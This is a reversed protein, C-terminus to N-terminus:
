KKITYFKNITNGIYEMDDEKYRQDIPLLVVNDSISLEHSNAGNWDMNAWLKLSYINNKKLFIRIDEGQKEVFLPYMYTIDKCDLEFRNYKKLINKQNSRFYFFGVIILIIGIIFLITIRKKFVEQKITKNKMAVYSHIGYPTILLTMIPVATLTLLQKTTSSSINKELGLSSFFYVISVIIYVVGVTIMTGLLRKNKEMSKGFSYYVSLIAVVNAIIIFGYILLQM